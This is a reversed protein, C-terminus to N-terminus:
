VGTWSFPRSAPVPSSCDTNLTGSPRCYTLGASLVCISSAHQRVAKSRTSCEQQCQLSMQACTLAQPGVLAARVRCLHVRLQQRLPAIELVGLLAAKLVPQVPAAGARQGGQGAAWGASSRVINVKSARRVCRDCVLLTWEQNQAVRRSPQAGRLVLFPCQKDAITECIHPAPPCCPHLCAAQRQAYPVSRGRVPQRLPHQRPLVRLLREQLAHRRLGVAQLQDVRARELRPQHPAPQAQQQPVLM